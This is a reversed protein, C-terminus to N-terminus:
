NTGKTITDVVVASIMAIRRNNKMEERIEKIRITFSKKGFIILQCTADTYKM